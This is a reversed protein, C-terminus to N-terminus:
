SRGLNKLQYGPYKERTVLVLGKKREEEKEERQKGDRTEKEKRRKKTNGESEHEEKLKYVGKANWGYRVRTPQTRLIEKQGM